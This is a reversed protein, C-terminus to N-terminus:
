LRKLNFTQPPLGTNAADREAETPKSNPLGRPKEVDRKWKRARDVEGPWNNLCTLLDHRRYDDKPILAGYYEEMIAMDEASITGLDMFAKKEKVSWATTLRRHFMTAVRKSNESTPLLDSDKGDVVGKRAPPTGNRKGELEVEREGEGETSATTSACSSARSAASKKGGRKGAKRKAQVEAQKETPYETVFYDVGDDYLLPKAAEVEEKTVGCTAMWTRDNWKVANELRGGNEQECCYALVRLWTEIAGKSAGAFEPTRLLETRINMWNM